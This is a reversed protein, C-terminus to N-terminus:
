RRSGIRRFNVVLGERLLDYVAPLGREVPASVDAPQLEEGAPQLEAGGLADESESAAAPQTTQM